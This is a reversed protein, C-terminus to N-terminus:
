QVATKGVLLHLLEDGLTSRYANAKNYAKIIKNSLNPDKPSEMGKVPYHWESIFNSKSPGNFRKQTKMTKEPQLLVEGSLVGDYGKSKSLKIGEDYLVNSLGKGQESAKVNIYEPRMWRKGFEEVEPSLEIDAIIGKKPTSLAIKSIGFRDKTVTKVINDYNVIPVKLLRGVSYPITELLADGIGSKLGEKNGTRNYDSATAGLRSVTLAPALPSFDVAVEGARIVSQAVKSTGNRVVQKMDMNKSPTITVNPLSVEYTGDKYSNALQNNKYAENYEKTGYKVTKPNM